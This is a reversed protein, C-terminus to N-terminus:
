EEPFMTTEIKCNKKVEGVLQLIRARSKDNNRLLRRAEAEAFPFTRHEYTPARGGAVAVLFPGAMPRLKEKGGAELVFDGGHEQVALQILHRLEPKGIKHTVRIAPGSTSYRPDDVIDFFEIM